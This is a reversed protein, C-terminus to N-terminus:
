EKFLRRVYVGGGVICVGVIAWWLAAAWISYVLWRGFSMAGGASQANAYILYGILVGLVAGVVVAISLEVQHERKWKLPNM